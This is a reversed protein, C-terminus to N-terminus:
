LGNEKKVREWPVTGKRRTERRARRVGERDIRDEMERLVAYDDVSIIVAMEKNRRHLTIREGGYAVRNLAEAGDKRLESTSLRLM